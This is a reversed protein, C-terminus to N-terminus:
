HPLTDRQRVPHLPRLPRQGRHSTGRQGPPLRTHAAALALGARGELTVDDLPQTPPVSARKPRDANKTGSPPNAGLQVYPGFRGTQLLVDLGTDPDHGLDRPGEQKAALLERAKALTLDAPPLDPPLSATHGAGGEGRQLYPGFRGIRVVIAPAERQEGDLPPTADQDGNVSLMPFAINPLETEIRSALGLGGDDGHYFKRLQSVCDTEGRAIADLTEEMAVTFAPEVLEGFHRELLDTVAYAVFTPVLASGQKFAYGRELITGIIAAYTSPRGLGDEELKRVLSAETFRAPPQTEHRQPTLSQPRLRDGEQLAPLLRESNEDAETDDQGETYARLFGAFTVRNGRAEFIAPGDLVPAAIEVVTRELKADTM